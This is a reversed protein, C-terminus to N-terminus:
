NAASTADGEGSDSDLDDDCTSSKEGAAGVGWALQCSLPPPAASHMSGAFWAKWAVTPAPRAATTSVSSRRSSTPEECSLLPKLLPKLRARLM